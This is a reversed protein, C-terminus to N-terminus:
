SYYNINLQNIFEFSNKLKDNSKGVLARISKLPVCNVSTEFETTLPVIGLPLSCVM